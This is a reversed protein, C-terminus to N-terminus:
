VCCSYCIYIYLSVFVTAAHVPGTYTLTLPSRLCSLLLAYVDRVWPSAGLPLWECLYISSLCISLCISLCVTKELPTESSMCVVTLPQRWSWCYNAQVFHVCHYKQINKTVYDKTHVNKEKSTKQKCVTTEVKANKHTNQIPMPKQKHM